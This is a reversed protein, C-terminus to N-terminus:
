LIRQGRSLRGLPKVPWSRDNLRIRELRTFVAAESRGPMAEVMQVYAIRLQEEEEETWLQGSSREPIV